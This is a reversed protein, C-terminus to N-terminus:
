SASRTRRTGRSSSAVKSTAGTTSRGPRSTKSPVTPREEESFAVQSVYEMVPRLKGITLPSSPDEFMTMFDKVEEPVITAQFFPGTQMVVERARAAQEADGKAEAQSAQGMLRKVIEFPIDDRHRIKWTRGGLTFTGSFAPAEGTPADFDMHQTM